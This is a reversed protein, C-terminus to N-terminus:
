GGGRITFGGLRADRQPGGASHRISGLPTTPVAELKVFQTTDITQVRKDMTKARQYTDWASLGDTDQERPTLAMRTRAGARYLYRLAGGHSENESM